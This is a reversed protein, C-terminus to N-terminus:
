LFFDNFCYIKTIAISVYNHGSRLYTLVTTLWEHFTLTKRVVYKPFVKHTTNVSIGILRVSQRWSVAPTSPFQAFPRIM